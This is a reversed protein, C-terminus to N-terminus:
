VDNVAHVTATMSGTGSTRTYKVRAYVFGVDSVNFLTDGDASIAVQSDTDDAWNTGDNSYQLLLTGVPSGGGSITCHVSFRDLLKATINGSTFSAGVSQATLLPFTNTDNAM